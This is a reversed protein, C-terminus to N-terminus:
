NVYLSFKRQGWDVDASWAKRKLSAEFFPDKISNFYHTSSLKSAKEAFDLVQEPSSTMLEVARNLTGFYTARYAKDSPSSIPVLLANRTFSPPESRARLRCNISYLLQADNEKIANEVRERLIDLRKQSQNRHDKEFEKQDKIEKLKKKRELIQDRKYEGQRRIDDLEEQRRRRKEELQRRKELRIGTKEYRVRAQEARKYSRELLKEAEKKEKRKNNEEKKRTKEKEKEMEM